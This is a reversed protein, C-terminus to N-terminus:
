KLLGKIEAASENNYNLGLKKNLIKSITEINELEERIMQVDEGKLIYFLIKKLKEEYGLIEEIEIIEKVDKFTLQTIVDNVWILNDEDKIESDKNLMELYVINDKDIKEIRSFDIKLENIIKRDFLILIFKFESNHLIYEVFSILEKMNVKSCDTNSKILKIIDVEEKYNVNAYLTEFLKEVVKNIEEQYYDKEIFKAIKCTM